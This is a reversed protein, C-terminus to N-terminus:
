LSGAKALWESDFTLDTRAGILDFDRDYHLIGLQHRDAIAAQLIDVPPMRHHGVRALQRQADIARREVVEDIAAWPLALLEAILDRHDQASQASYGAELVFPLCAVVQGSEIAAAVEDIRSKRLRRRGLRAWASNDILFSGTLHAGM